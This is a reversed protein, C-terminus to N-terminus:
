FFPQTPQQSFGDVASVTVTRSATLLSLQHLAQQVVMLAQARVGATLHLGSVVACVEVELSMHIGSAKRGALIGLDTLSGTEFILHFRSLFVGM